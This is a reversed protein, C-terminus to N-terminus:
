MFSHIVAGFLWFLAPAVAMTGIASGLRGALSKDEDDDRGTFTLMGILTSIGAAHVLGIPIVGLPVIFWAWLKALVFGRWIIAAPVVPIIILVGLWVSKSKGM